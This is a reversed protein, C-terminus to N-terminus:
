RKLYCRPAPADSANIRRHLIAGRSRGGTPLWNPHGQDAAIFLRTVGDADPAATAHNLHSAPLPELWHSTVQVGWYDCTFSPLEIALVENEGLEFYGSFYRTGPDGQVANDLEPALPTIENPHEAFAQSWRLFQRASGAIFHQARSLSLAIAEPSPAANAPLILPDATFAFAAAADGERLRIERIVLLNSAPGLALRAEPALDGGLVLDIEGTARPVGPGALIRYSDTTIRGDPQVTYVGVGIRYAGNVRTRLRYNGGPVLNATGIRYDPNFGGIRAPTFSIGNQLREPGMLFREIGYATLRALYAAGEAQCVADPATPLVENGIATLTNRFQTWAAASM